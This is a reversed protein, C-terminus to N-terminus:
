NCPWMRWLDHASQRARQLFRLSNSRRVQLLVGECAEQMWHLYLVRSSVEAFGGDFLEWYHGQLVGRMQTSRKGCALGFLCRM